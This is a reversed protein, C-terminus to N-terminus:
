KVACKTSFTSNAVLAEKTIIFSKYHDFGFDLVTQHCSRPTNHRGILPSSSSSSWRFAMVLLGVHRVLSLERKYRWKPEESGDDMLTRVFCCRQAWGSGMMCRASLSHSLRIGYPHNNARDNPRDTPRQNLRHARPLFLPSIILWQSSKTSM